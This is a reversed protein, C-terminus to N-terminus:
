GDLSLNVSDIILEGRRGYWKVQGDIHISGEFHPGSVVITEYEGGEGDVNFRFQSSLKILQGLSENDLVKGIWTHDLGECAVSTIMIGFGNSVMDSIHNQPSQHWLPNYSIIGLRHCMREIKSKQYDSRLAGTVLADLGLSKLGAELDGIETVENGDTEICLWEIGALRAQHEVIETGPVQFMMSDGSTVRMTILFEVDWGQCAAWWWASASDKGGSSLIAVRM